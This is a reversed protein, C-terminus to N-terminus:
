AAKQAVKQSALEADILEKFAEFPKAGSVYKGNIFFAPTGTAGLQAAERKDADIRSKVEASARDRDFKTVDLGLEAAYQAYKEPAMERQNEFIKDHMEWFKGQRGAAEAALHAAPAKPHTDLPLHKFVIRVQDGYTERVQKLAPGVRGCFPCQFDSFEVITVAATAPGLAPSGAVNVPYRRNPDPGRRVEAPRASALADKAEAVAVRIAELRGTTQDLQSAMRDMARALVFSGAIVALAVVAAAILTQRGSAQTMSSEEKKKV